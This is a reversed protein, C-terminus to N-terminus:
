NPRLLTFPISIYVKADSYTRWLTFGHSIGLIMPTGSCTWFHSKQLSKASITSTFFFEIFFIEVFLFTINNKTIPDFFIGIKWLEPQSGQNQYACVQYCLGTLCPKICDLSEFAGPNRIGASLVLAAPDQPRLAPIWWRSGSMAHITMNRGTQEWRNLQFKRLRATVRETCLWEKQAQNRQCSIMGM